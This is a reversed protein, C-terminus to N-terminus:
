KRQMRHQYNERGDGKNQVPKLADQINGFVPDAAIKVQRENFDVIDSFTARCHRREQIDCAVTRWEDRLKYSLKNLVTRMNAAMDLESMWQIEDMANCCGRLFLAYAQLAKVDEPKIVTWILAKDLYSSAIRQENGLHQELLAKAKHYGRDAAMQQCSRVLERPQGRTYQELFHLCDTADGTKEEINSEFATMFAHYLVPDGDFVQMERNPLSSLNQQHVLM